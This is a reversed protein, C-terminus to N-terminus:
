YKKQERLFKYKRKGKEYYSILLKKNDFKFPIVVMFNDDIEPFKITLANKDNLAGYKRLFQNNQHHRNYNGIRKNLGKRLFAISEYNTKLKKTQSNEIAVTENMNIDERECNLLLFSIGFLLIFIRFYSKLTDKM